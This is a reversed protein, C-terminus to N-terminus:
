AQPHAQELLRICDKYSQAIKPINQFSEAGDVASDLATMGKEDVLDVKAGKRLLYEVLRPRGASAACILPTWKTPCDGRANVDAGSQFLRQFCSKCFEDTAERVLVFLCKNADESNVLERKALPHNLHFSSCNLM